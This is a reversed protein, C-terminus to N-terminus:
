KLLSCSVDCGPLRPDLEGMADGPFEPLSQEAVWCANATVRPDIPKSSDYDQLTSIEADMVDHAKSLALQNADTTMLEMVIDMSHKEWLLSFIDSEKGVFMSRFATFVDQMSHNSESEDPVLSTLKPISCHYEGVPVKGAIWMAQYLMRYVDLGTQEKLTRLFSNIPIGIQHPDIDNYHDAYYQASLRTQNFPPLVDLNKAKFQTCLDKSHPTQANEKDLSACCKLFRRPTYDATFYGVPSDYTQYDTIERPQQLCTPLTSEIDVIHGRVSVALLDAVTELMLSTPALENYIPPLMPNNEHSLVHGLEHLYIGGNIPEGSWDAFVGLNVIGMQSSKEVEV